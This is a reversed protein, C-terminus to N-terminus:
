RSFTILEVMTHMYTLEDQLKYLTDSIGSLCADIQDQLYENDM